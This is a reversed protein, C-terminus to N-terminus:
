FEQGNALINIRDENLKVDENNAVRFLLHLGKGVIDVMECKLYMGM